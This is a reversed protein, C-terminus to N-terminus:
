APEWAGRPVTSAGGNNRPKPKACPLHTGRISCSRSGWSRFCLYTFERTVLHNFNRFETLTMNVAASNMEGFTAGHRTEGFHYAITEIDGNPDEPDPGGAVIM